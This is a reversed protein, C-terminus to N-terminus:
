LLCEEAAEAFCGHMAQGILSMEGFITHAGLRAVILKRGDPALRYLNVAGRKLIYIVEGTDNPTYFVRGANCTIMTTNQSLWKQESATLTAFVETERLFHLKSAVDEASASASVAGRESRDRSGGLRTLGALKRTISGHQDM